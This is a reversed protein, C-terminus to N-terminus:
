TGSCDVYIHEDVYGYGYQEFAVRGLNEDESGVELQRQLEKNRDQQLEIKNELAQLQAEKDSIDSQIDVIKVTCFLVFCVFVLSMFGNRSKRQKAMKEREGRAGHPAADGQVQQEWFLVRKELRILNYLLHVRPKLSFKCRLCLKKCSKRLFRLIGRPVALIGRVFFSLPRYILKQWVFLLLRSGLTCLLQGLTFHCLLWGLGEGLLLYARLRGQDMWLAFRLTVGGCLLCYLVDEAAIRGWQEPLVRRLIRFADYLLSLAAGVGLAYLFAACQHSLSIEM